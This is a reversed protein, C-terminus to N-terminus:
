FDRPLTVTCILMATGGGVIAGTIAGVVSTVVGPSTILAGAIASGAAGALASKICDNNGRLWDVQRKTLKTGEFSVQNAPSIRGASAESHQSQAAVHVRWMTGTPLKSWPLFTGATTNGTVKVPTLPGQVGATGVYIVYSVAGSVSNWRVSIGTTSVSARVNTPAALPVQASLAVRSIGNPVSIESQTAAPQNAVSAHAVPAGAMALILSGAM